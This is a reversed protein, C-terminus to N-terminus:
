LLQFTYQHRQHKLHTFMAKKQSAFPNALQHVLQFALALQYYLLFLAGLLTLNTTSWTLILYRLLGILSFICSNTFRNLKHHPTTPLFECGLSSLFLSQFFPFFFTHTIIFSPALASPSSSSLAKNSREMQYSPNSPLQSFLKIRRTVM